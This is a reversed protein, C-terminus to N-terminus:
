CIVSGFEVSDRLPFGLLKKNLSSFCMEDIFSSELSSKESCCFLKSQSSKLFLHSVNVYRFASAVILEYDFACSFYDVFFTKFFNWNVFGPFTDCVLFSNIDAKIQM